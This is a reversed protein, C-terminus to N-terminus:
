FKSPNRILNRSPLKVEDFNLNAFRHHIKKAINIQGSSYNKQKQELYEAFNLLEILMNTPLEQSIKYVHEAITM